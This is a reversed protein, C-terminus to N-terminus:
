RQAEGNQPSDPEAPVLAVRFGIDPGGRDEDLWRRMASRCFRPPDYWSGGRLIRGSLPGDDAPETCVCWEWVNGHMDYLGWANPRLLGADRKREGSNMQFWAVEALNPCFFEGQTLDKGSNLATTTGARCAYEWQEETPIAFRYGEPLQDRCLVNLRECFSIADEWFVQTMPRLRNELLSLDAGTVAAYQERTVPLRGLWFAQGISVRRRAEGTHRSFAEAKEPAFDYVAQWYERTTRGTEGDPSGMEFEGAPISELHLMVGDPLRVQLGGERPEPPVANRRAERDSFPSPEVPTLEEPILALRFGIVKYYHHWDDCIDRKASRCSDPAYACGGRLIHMTDNWYGPPAELIGPVPPNPRVWDYCLEGANGHMDYLGFRNPAKRGVPHNDPFDNEDKTTWAISETSSTFEGDSDVSLDTGNSFATATGARCAWEWQMELPLSFKYGKPLKGECAKNLEDCAEMAWRWDVSGTSPYDASAKFDEGWGMDPYMAMFQGHTVECRGLWFDKEIRVLRQNERFIMYRIIDLARGTANPDLRSGLRTAYPLGDLATALVPRGLEGVPSGAMFVGAPIRRFVIECASPFSVTLEDGSMTVEPRERTFRPPPAGEVVATGPPGGRRGASKPPSWPIIDPVDHAIFYRCNFAVCIYFVSDRGEIRCKRYLAVVNPRDEDIIKFYKQWERMDSNFFYDSFDVEDEDEWHSSTEKWKNQKEEANQVIESLSCKEAPPFVLEWALSLKGEVDDITPLQEAQPAAGPMGRLQGSPLLIALALAAIFRPM